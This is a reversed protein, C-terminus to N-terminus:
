NPGARLHPSLAFAIPFHFNAIITIFPHISLLRGVAPIIICPLFAGLPSQLLAKFSFVFRRQTESIRPAAPLFNGLWRVGRRQILQALVHV